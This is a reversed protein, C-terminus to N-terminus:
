CSLQRRDRQDTLSVSLESHFCVLIEKLSFSHRLDFHSWSVLTVSKQMLFYPCMKRKRVWPNVDMFILSNLELLM